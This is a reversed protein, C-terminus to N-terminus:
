HTQDPNRVAGDDVIACAFDLALITRLTDQMNTTKINQPVIGAGFPLCPAGAM